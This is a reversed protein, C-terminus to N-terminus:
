CMSKYACNFFQFQRVLIDQPQYGDANVKLWDHICKSEALKCSIAPGQEKLALASNVAMLALLTLQVNM